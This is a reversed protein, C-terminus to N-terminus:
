RCVSKNEKVIYGGGALLVFQWPLRDHTHTSKPCVRTRSFVVFIVIQWVQGIVLLCTYGVAASGCLFLTQMKLNLASVYHPLTGM